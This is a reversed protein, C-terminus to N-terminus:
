KATSFSDLPAGAFIFDWSYTNQQLAVMEKIKQLSYKKSANDKGSTAVFVSVKAPRKEEPTNHLKLGVDDVIKGLTDFLTASGKPAYEKKTLKKADKINIGDHIVKGKDSFLVTTLVAEGSQKKQEEIFANYKEITNAGSSEMFGSKDLVAIIEKLDQRM